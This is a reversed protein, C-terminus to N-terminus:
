PSEPLLHHEQMNRIFLQELRNDDRRLYENLDTSRSRAQWLKRGTAADFLVAEMTDIRQSVNQSDVFDDEEERAHYGTARSWYGYVIEDEGLPPLKEKKVKEGVLTTVLVEKAGSRRIIKEMEARDLKSTRDTFRSSPLAAVGTKEINEVFSEEYIRHATPNSFVGVVLIPGPVPQQVAPNSWSSLLSSGACAQLLVLALGLICLRLRNRHLAHLIM